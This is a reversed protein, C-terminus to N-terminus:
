IQNGGYNHRIQGYGGELWLICINYSEDHPTQHPPLNFLTVVFGGGKHTLCSCSRLIYSKQTQIIHHGCKRAREGWGQTSFLLLVRTIKKGLKRSYNKGGALGGGSLVAM